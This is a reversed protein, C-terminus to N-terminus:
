RSRLGASLPARGLGTMELSAPLRSAGDPQTSLDGSSYSHRTNGLRADLATLVHAVSVAVTVPETVSATVSATVTATDTVTM